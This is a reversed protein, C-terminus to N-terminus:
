DKLRAIIFAPWSGYRTEARGPYRLYAERGVEQCLGLFGIGFLPAHAYFNSLPKSPTLSIDRYDLYIPPGDRTLLAAPSYENILPLLKERSAYFKEFSPKVGGPEHIGFAQAGYDIDPDVWARMQRPDLSTQAVITAVCVPRTSERSVADAATPDVLDPHAALWLASCAGASCGCVGLRHKNLGWAAARCRIFQISRAIDHMPVAVAPTAADPNKLPLFRYNISVISIGADLIAHYNYEGIESKDDHVWAGGHIYVMVTTPGPARARYFDLRQLSDSGYAVDRLTPPPNSAVVVDDIAEFGLRVPEGEVVFRGEWEQGHARVSTVEGELRAAEAQGDVRLAPPLAGGQGGARSLRFTFHGVESETLFNVWSDDLGGYLPQGSILIPGVRLEAPTLRRFDQLGGARGEGRFAILLLILGLLRPLGAGAIKPPM